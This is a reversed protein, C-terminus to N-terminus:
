NKPETLKKLRELADNAEQYTPRMNAAKSYMKKAEEPKKEKELIIGKYYYAEPYIPQIETVIEFNKNAQALSDMNLYIIGSNFFATVYRPDIGIIERYGELAEKYKGKEQLYFAKANRLEMNATDIRIATEFYNLAEKESSKGKLQALNLWADTLKSDLATARKFAAIAKADEGVEKFNIGMMLFAEANLPDKALIKNITTMSENYFQLILQFESLKLLTNISDPYLDTAREMTRLALRSQNADMYIDALLHHFGLNNSDIKMASAMDQIALDYADKEYLLKAREFYLQANQPSAIIKETLADIAPDGTKNEESVKSENKCAIVLTVILLLFLFHKM